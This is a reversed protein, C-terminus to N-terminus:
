IQYLVQLVISPPERCLVPLLSWCWGWSFSIYFPLITKQHPRVFLQSFFLLSLSTAWDQGVRQSWMSQLSSAEEMWPINRGLFSSCAVMEKELPDEWGQSQVWTERMSPLNKVLQAVLSPEIYRSLTCTLPMERSMQMSVFPFLLSKQYGCITLGMASHIKEMVLLKCHCFDPLILPILKWREELEETM